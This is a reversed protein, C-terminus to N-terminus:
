NLALSVKLAQNLVDNTQIDIEGLRTLLREKSITLLQSTKVMSDQNLGTKEAATILVNVESFLPLASESFQLAEEDDDLYGKEMERRARLTKIADVIIEDRRCNVENAYHEIFDLLDEQLTVQITIM